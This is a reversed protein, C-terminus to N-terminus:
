DPHLTGTVSVDVLMLLLLNHSWQPGSPHLHRDICCYPTFEPGARMMVPTFGEKLSVTHGEYITEPKM